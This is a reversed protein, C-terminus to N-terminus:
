LTSLSKVSIGKVRFLPKEPKETTIFEQVNQRLAAALHLADVAALGHKCALKEAEEGLQRSLPEVGKVDAFHTEYFAAEEAQKYCSAKPILELRVLQSSYFERAPDGLISFAATADRGRWANLLVGSDLYTRM